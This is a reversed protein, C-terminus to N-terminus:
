RGGSKTNGWRNYKTWEKSGTYPKITVDEDKHDVKTELRRKGTTSTWEITKEWIVGGKKSEKM